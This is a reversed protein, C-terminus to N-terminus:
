ILTQNFEFGISKTMNKSSYKESQCLGEIVVIRKSQLGLLNEFSFRRAVNMIEGPTLLYKQALIRCEDKRIGKIANKWIAMIADQTPPEFNMKITWRREFAADMNQTLNTTGILIGGFTEMEELMINQLGNTMQDVSNQTNVRKGIIQDCENLFLIPAIPYKDYVKKYDSFIRKLNAESDGVWKSMFDTVHIKMLPRNTRKAIQLAFETKGCGPAGHFLLTIGKMRESSALKTQYDKFKVPSLLQVIRDTQNKFHDSFYLQTKKIEKPQMLPTNIAGMKKRILDLTFNDIEKMFFDFGKETLQLTPNFELHGGGTIEIYGLEIPTWTGQLISKRLESIEQRGFQIYRVMYGFDFNDNDILAKACTALVAFAAAHNHYMFHYEIFHILEVKSNTEKLTYLLTDIESERLKDHDMAKQHFFALIQELGIPHKLVFYDFQDEDIARQTKSSLYYFTKNQDEYKNLYDESVLHRLIGRIDRAKENFFRLLMSTIESIEVCHNQDCKVYIISLIAIQKNNLSLKEAAIVVKKLNEIPEGSILNKQIENYANRLISDINHEM